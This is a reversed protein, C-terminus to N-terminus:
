VLCQMTTNAEVRSPLAKISDLESNFNGESYLTQIFEIYPILRPDCDYLDKNETLAYYLVCGIAHADAFINNDETNDEQNLKTLDLSLNDLNSDM